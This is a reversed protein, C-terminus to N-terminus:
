EIKFFVSIWFLEELTSTEANLMFMRKRKDGLMEKALM